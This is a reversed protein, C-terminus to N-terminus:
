GITGRHTYYTTSKTHLSQTVLFVLLHSVLEQEAGESGAAGEGHGGAEDPAGVGPRGLGPGAPSM